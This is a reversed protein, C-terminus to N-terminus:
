GSPPWDVGDAAIALEALVVGLVMGLLPVIWLSGKTYQRLRFASSWSMMSRMGKGRERATRGRYPLARIRAPVAGATCGSSENVSENMLVSPVKKRLSSSHVM